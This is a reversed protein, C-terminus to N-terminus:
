PVPPSTWTVIAGSTVSRSLLLIGQGDPMPRCRRREEGAAGSIRRELPHHTSGAPVYTAGLWHRARSRSARVRLPGGSPARGGAARRRWGHADDARLWARPENDSRRYAAFHTVSTRGPQPRKISPTASGFRFIEVGRITLRFSSVPRRPGITSPLLSSCQRRTPPRACCTGATKMTRSPPYNRGLATSALMASGPPSELSPPGTCTSSGHQPPWMIERFGSTASGKCHITPIAVLVFWERYACSPEPFEPGLPWSVRDSAGRISKVQVEIMPRDGDTYVALIDTRALGDRTLAPAWDLRALM